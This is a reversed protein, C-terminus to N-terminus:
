NLGLKLLSTLQNKTKQIKTKTLLIYIKNEKKKIRAISPNAVIFKKKFLKAMKFYSSLNIKKKIMRRKDKEEYKQKTIYKYQFYGLVLTFRGLRFEYVWLSYM